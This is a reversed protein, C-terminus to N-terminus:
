EAISANFREVVVVVDVSTFCSFFCNTYNYLLLREFVVSDGQVAFCFAGFDLRLCNYVINSRIQMAVTLRKALKQM